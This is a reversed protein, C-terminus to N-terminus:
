LLCRMGVTTTCSSVSSIIRNTNVPVSVDMALASRRTIMASTGVIAM